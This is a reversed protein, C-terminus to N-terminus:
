AAFAEVLQLVEQGFRELKIPGVGPVALLADVTPPRRAAIEVLTRDPFIVFAPVECEKAKALRWERLKNFLPNSFSVENNQSGGSSARQRLGEAKPPPNPLFIEPQRHGDIVERGISSIMLTPYKSPSQKILGTGLLEALLERIRPQPWEGLAGYGPTRMAWPRDRLWRTEVGSLIAALNAAGIQDNHRVIAQLAIRVEAPDIQTELRDPALCNDCNQCDFLQTSEGFHHAIRAHRCSRLSAYGKIAQLRVYAHRRGDESAQGPEAQEYGREILFSQIDSDGPRWLLLCYAPQGDRGARGAEQYYGELSSPLQFHIVQRIDPIDIGMGFATTAVVIRCRNGAFDEQVRSRANDDLQAH